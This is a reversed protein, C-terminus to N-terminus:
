VIDTNNACCPFVFQCERWCPPYWKSSQIGRKKRLGHAVEIRRAIAREQRAAFGPATACTKLARGLHLNAETLVDAERRVEEPTHEEGPHAFVGVASSLLLLAAPLRVM